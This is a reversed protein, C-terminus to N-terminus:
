LCCTAFDTELAPTLSHAGGDITLNPHRTCSTCNDELALRIHRMTLTDEMWITMNAGGTDTCITNRINQLMRMRTLQNSAIWNAVTRQELSRTQNAVGGIATSVAAGIIGIIAIAILIELLTFGRM